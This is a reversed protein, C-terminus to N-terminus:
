ASLFSDAEELVGPKGPFPCKGFFADNKGCVDAIGAIGASAVGQIEGRDGAVNLRAEAAAKGIPVVVASEVYGQPHEGDYSQHPLNLQQNGGAIEANGFFFAAVGGFFIGAAQESLHFERQILEERGLSGAFTGAAGGSFLGGCRAGSGAVSVSRGM